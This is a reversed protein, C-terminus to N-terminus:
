GLLVVKVKDFPTKEFANFMLTGPPFIIKGAAKETKIFTAIQLFYDKTFQDKLVAKWTHEIKVDM